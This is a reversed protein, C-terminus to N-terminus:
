PLIRWTHDDGVETKDISGPQLEAVSMTMM